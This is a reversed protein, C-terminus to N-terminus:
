VAILGVIAKLIISKGITLALSELKDWFAKRQDTDAALEDSNGNMHDIIDDPNMGKLLLMFAEENKKESMLDLMHRFTAQGVKRLMVQNEVCFLAIPKGVTVLVTQGDISAVFKGGNAELQTVLSDVWDAM